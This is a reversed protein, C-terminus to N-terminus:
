PVDLPGPLSTGLFRVTGLQFGFGFGTVPSRLTTTRM